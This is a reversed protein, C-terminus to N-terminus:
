CCRSPKTLPCDPGWTPAMARAAPWGWAPQQVPPAPGAPFQVIGGQLFAAASDDGLSEARLRRVVQLKLDAKVWITSPEGAKKVQGKIDPGTLAIYDDFALSAYLRWTDGQGPQKRLYGQLPVCERLLEPNNLNDFVDDQSPTFAM